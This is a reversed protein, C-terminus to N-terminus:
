TSSYADWLEATYLVSPVRLLSFFFFLSSLVFSLLSHALTLRRPIITARESLCRSTRQRMQQEHFYVLNIIILFSATKESVPPEKKKKKNTTATNVDTRWSYTPSPAAPLTNLMNQAAIHCAVVHLQDLFSVSPRKRATKTARRTENNTKEREWVCVCVCSTDDKVRRILPCFGSFSPRQEEWSFEVRQRPSDSACM